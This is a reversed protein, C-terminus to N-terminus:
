KDLENGVMKDVHGYDDADLERFKVGLAEIAPIVKEIFCEVCADITYRTRSDCEPFREGVVAEITTEYASWSGTGQKDLDKDCFDCYSAREVMTTTKTISRGVIM